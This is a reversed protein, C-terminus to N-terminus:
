EIWACTEGAGACVVFKVVSIRFITYSLLHRIGM